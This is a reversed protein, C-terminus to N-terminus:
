SLDRFLKIIPWRWLIWRHGKRLKEQKLIIETIVSLQHQVTDEMLECELTKPWNQKLKLNGTLSTLRFDHISAAPKGSQSGGSSPEIQENCKRSSQKLEFWNYSKATGVMNKLSKRPYKFSTFENISQILGNEYWFDIYYQMFDM